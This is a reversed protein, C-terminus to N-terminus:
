SAEFGTAGVLATLVVEGGVYCGIEVKAMVERKFTHHAYVHHAAVPVAALKGHGIIGVLVLALGGAVVSLAALHVVM